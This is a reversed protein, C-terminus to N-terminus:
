LEMETALYKPLRIHRRDFEDDHCTWCSVIRRHRRMASELLASRSMDSLLVEILILLAERNDRLVRMTEECCRRM